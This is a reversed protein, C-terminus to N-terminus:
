PVRLLQSDQRWIDSSLDKYKELYSTKQSKKLFTIFIFSKKELNSIGQLKEEM